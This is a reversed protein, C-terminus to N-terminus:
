VYLVNFFFAINAQQKKQSEQNAPFVPKASGAAMVKSAM